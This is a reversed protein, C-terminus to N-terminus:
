FLVSWVGAACVALVALVLVARAATVNPEREDVATRYGAIRRYSQTFWYRKLNRRRTQRAERLFDADKATM